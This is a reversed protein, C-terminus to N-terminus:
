PGLVWRWLAKLYGGEYEVVWGTFPVVFLWWSWFGWVCNCEANACLNMPLGGHIIKSVIFTGCLPCPNIKGSMVARESM